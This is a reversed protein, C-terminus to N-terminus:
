FSSTQGNTPTVVISSNTTYIIDLTEGTDIRMITCNDSICYSLVSVQEEQLDGMGSSDNPSPQVDSCSYDPLVAEISGATIIVLYFLATNSM